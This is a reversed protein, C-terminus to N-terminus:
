EEHDLQHLSMELRNLKSRAREYAANAREVLFRLYEEDPFIRGDKGIPVQLYETSLFEVLYPPALSRFSTEKFGAEKGANFLTRAEMETRCYTHFIPAQVLLYLYGTEYKKLAERLEDIGVKRHWKGLFRAGVKDGIEPLELLGIRGACSSSTFSDVRMNIIELIAIVDEDVKGQAIFEDLEQMRREKQWDM